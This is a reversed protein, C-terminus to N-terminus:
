KAIRANPKFYLLTNLNPKRELRTQQLGLKQTHLERHRLIPRQESHVLHYRGQRHNRAQFTRCNRYM